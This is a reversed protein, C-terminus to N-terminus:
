LTPLVVGVLAPPIILSMSSFLKLAPPKAVRTLLRNAIWVFITAVLTVIGIVFFLLIFFTKPFAFAVILDLYDLAYYDVAFEYESKTADRDFDEYLMTATVLLKLEVTEQYYALQLTVKRPFCLVDCAGIIDTDAASRDVVVGILADVGDADVIEDLVSAGLLYEDLSIPRRPIKFLETGTATEMWRVVPELVGIAEEYACHLVRFCADSVPSAMIDSPTVPFIDDPHPLPPFLLRHPDDAVYEPLQCRSGDELIQFLPVMSDFEFCNSIYPLYPMILREFTYRPAATNLDTIEHFTERYRSTLTNLDGEPANWYSDQPAVVSYPEVVRAVGSDTTVNFATMVRGREFAEYRPPLNLPATTDDMYSRSYACVFVFETAALRNQRTLAATLQRRPTHPLGM